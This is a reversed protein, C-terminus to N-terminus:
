SEGGSSLKTYFWGAVSYEVFLASCSKCRYKNRVLKIAPNSCCQAINNDLDRQHSMVIESVM